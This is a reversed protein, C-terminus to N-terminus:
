FSIRQLFYGVKVDFPEFEIRMTDSLHYVAAKSSSYISQFPRNYGQIGAM